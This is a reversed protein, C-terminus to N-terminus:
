GTLAIRRIRAIREDGIRLFEIRFRRPVLAEVILDITRRPTKNRKTDRNM